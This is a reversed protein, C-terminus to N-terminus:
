AAWAAEILNYPHSQGVFPPAGIYEFVVQAPELQIWPQRWVAECGLQGARGLPEGAGVDCIQALTGGHKAHLISNATGVLRVVYGDSAVVKFGCETKESRGV